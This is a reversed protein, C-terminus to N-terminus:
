IISSNKTKNMSNNIIPLNDVSRRIEYLMTKKNTSFVKKLLPDGKHKQSMHYKVKINDINNSIGTDSYKLENPNILPVLYKMMLIILSYKEQNSLNSFEGRKINELNIYLDRNKHVEEDDMFGNLGEEFLHFIGSYKKEYSKLKDDLYEFNTKLKSFEEQKKKLANELKNIKNELNTIISFEKINPNIYLQRHDQDRETSEISYERRELLRMKDMYKKNKAALALEVEKHVEIDKSLEFVKKELNEKKKLLEEIQNSQYELEILLQHNQLLTLKTSTDMYEINLQTVNKQTEQINEMMKKKLDSFKIQNRIEKNKVKEDSEIRLKDKELELQKIQDEQKEVLTQLSNAAEIKKQYSEIILKYKAIENFHRKALEEKENELEKERQKKEEKLREKEKECSDLLDQIHRVAKETKYSQFYSSKLDFLEKQINVYATSLSNYKQKLNELDQDKLSVAYSSMKIETQYDLPPQEVTKEEKKKSM